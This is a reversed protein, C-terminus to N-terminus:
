PKDKSSPLPALRAIDPSSITGTIRYEVAPAAQSRARKLPRPAQSTSDTSRLRLDLNRSYDVSGSGEWAAPPSSLSLREFDIRGKGCAFAASVARFPAPAPAADNAAASENPVLSLGALAASNARANGRCELSAILDARAAGHMVAQVHASASGTFLNALSPFDDTLDSLDVDSFDLAAEYKPRAGLDAQLSGGVSGGYFEGDLNSFELHRGDIALEGKLHHVAVPALAFDGLDFRGRARVTFGDKGANPRSNLFPLMRDLFTERWRPDLWRDLDASSLTGASVAFQWGDSSDHDLTGTWSTGFAQAATLITHTTGSKVETRARIKEVPLNLFPARVSVPAAPTGWDITGMIAAHLPRGAGQWRLDCRAPGGIDWGHFLDWGLQKSIAAVDRVQATNGQIHLAFSTLRRKASGDIRFSHAPSGVSLLAPALSIGKDRDYRALVQTVRVSPQSGNTSLAGRPLDITATEIRLPWAGLNLNFRAFGSAAVTDAIGFHFARAWALLDALSLADSDIRLESRRSDAPSWDLAGSVRASSHPTEVRAQTLEIHSGSFDLTASGLVNLSPNDNRLALDWRHLQAVSAKGQLLWSDGQTRASIFLAVNGRLGYDQGRALRLVDSISAGTADLELAAPRLRSSTGGLDGVLHLVGPQQVVVAARSPVATLDLRWRGAPESELSGTVDVLAFPLKDFGHKFNIRGNTVTITRFTPAPSTRSASNPSVSNGPATQPRPLWAALNWDGDPNRVLNLSPHELSITGLELHGSLFSHWHVRAILSDARLFYEYGFRPDESVRVSYAELAPGTWFSFAYAEVEVPRGFATELRATVRRKLSTHQIALSFGIGALWL